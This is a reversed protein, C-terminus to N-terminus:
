QWYANSGYWDTGDYYAFRGTSSSVVLYTNFVQLSKFSDNYTSLSPVWVQNAADWWAVVNGWISWVKGQYYVMNAPTTAPPTINGGSISITVSDLYVFYSDGSLGSATVEIQVKYANAPVTDTHTITNWTDSPMNLLTRSSAVGFDLGLGLSISSAKNHRLVGSVTVTKGLWENLTGSPVTPVSSIVTIAGDWGTLRQGRISYAGKWVTTTNEVVNGSYILDGKTWGSAGFEMAGNPIYAQMAGVSLEAIKPGLAAVGTWRADVGDSQAYKNSGPTFYVEGAGGSWDAQSFVFDIRPDAHESSFAGQSLRTPVIDVRGEQWVLRNDQEAIPLNLELSPPIKDLLRLRRSQM